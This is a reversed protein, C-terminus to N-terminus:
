FNMPITVWELGASSGQGCIQMKDSSTGATSSYLAWLRGRFAAACTPQISVGASAGAYTAPGGRGNGNYPTNTAWAYTGVGVMIMAVGLVAFRRAVSKRAEKGVLETMAWFLALAGTVIALSIGVMLVNFVVPHASSFTAVVEPKLDVFHGIPAGALAVVPWAFLALCVAILKFLAKV